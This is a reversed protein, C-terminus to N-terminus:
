RAAVRRRPASRVVAGYSAARSRLGDVSPTRAAPRREANAAAVRAAAPEHGVFLEDAVTGLLATPAAGTSAIFRNDEGQSHIHGVRLYRDASWGGAYADTARGGDIVLLDFASTLDAVIAAQTNRALAAALRAGDRLAPALFLGITSESPLAVRLADFADVLVPEGDPAVSAALTPRGSEAEILLVRFGLEAAIEGLALAVRGTDTEAANAAVMVRPLGPTAAPVKELSAVVGRLADRLDATMAAHSPVAARWTASGKGILAPESTGNRGPDPFAAPGGHDADIEAVIGEQSPAEPPQSEAQPVEVVDRCLEAGDEEIAGRIPGLSAVDSSPAGEHNAALAAARRRRGFPLLVSGFALTGAAAALMLRLVSRGREETAVAASVLRFPVIVAAPGAAAPAALAASARRLTKRAEDVIAQKAPDPNSATRRLVAERSRAVDAASAAAREIKQWEATLTAAARAVGDRLAIVTTHRNGLTQSAKDFQKRLDWYTDQLTAASAPLDTGAALPPSGAAIVARVAALHTEAARTTAAAAVLADAPETETAGVAALRDRAARASAHLADLRDAAEIERRRSAAAAATDEESVLAEAVASAYHTATPADPAEARIEILGDGTQATVAHGLRDTLRSMAGKPAVAGIMVGLRDSWSPEPVSGNTGLLSAAARAIVSKSAALDAGSRVAASRLATSPEDVAIVATATVVDALPVALSAAAAFLALVAAIFVRRRSVVSVSRTLGRDIM